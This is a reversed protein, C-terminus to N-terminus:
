AQRGLTKLIGVLEMTFKECHRSCPVFGFGERITAEWCACKPTPGWWRHGAGDVVPREAQVAPVTEIWVRM